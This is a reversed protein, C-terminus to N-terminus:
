LSVLFDVFPAVPAPWPCALPVGPCALAPRPYALFLPRTPFPLLFFATPFSPLLIPTNPGVWSAGGRWTSPSAITPATAASNQRTRLSCHAILRSCHATLLSCDSTPLDVAPIFFTMQVHLRGCTQLDSGGLVRMPYRCDSCRTGSM